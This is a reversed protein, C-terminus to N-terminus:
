GSYGPSGNCCCDTKIECIFGKPRCNCYEDDWKGNHGFRYWLQACDQGNPDKKTNNNPEGPAWNSYTGGCIEIGNKWVWKGEEASDTLGIFFGWQPRNICPPQDLKNDSIFNRVCTDIEETYLNALCGGRKYCVWQAYEYYTKGNQNADAPMECHVEYRTCKCFSPVCDPEYSWVGVFVVGSLLIFLVPKLYM